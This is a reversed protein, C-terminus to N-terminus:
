SLKSEAKVPAVNEEGGCPAGMALAIDQLVDALGRGSHQPCGSTEFANDVAHRIHRLERAIVVLANEPTIDRGLWDGFSEDLEEDTPEEFKKM